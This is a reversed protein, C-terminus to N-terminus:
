KTTNAALATVIRAVLDYPVPKGLPFKLTSRESRYPDLAHEFDEDGAPTPYISVHHKWGAFQVISRGDVTIAPINYSIKEGAGPVSGHITTGVKELIVQVDAPFSRIYDDVSAFHSAMGQVIGCRDPPWRIAM